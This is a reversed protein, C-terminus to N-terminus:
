KLLFRLVVDFIALGGLASSVVIEGRRLRADLRSAVEKLEQILIRRTRKESEADSIFREFHTELVAVRETLETM